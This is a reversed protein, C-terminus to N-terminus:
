VIWDFWMFRVFNRIMESSLKNWSELIWQVITRSPPPNSIEVHLLIPLSYAKKPCGNIMNNGVISSLHSIGVYMRPKYTCGGPIFEQDIKKAKLSSDVSSM